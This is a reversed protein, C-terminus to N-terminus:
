FSVQHSENSVRYQNLGTFNLYKLHIHSGEEERQLVIKNGWLKNEVIHLAHEYVHQPIEYRSLLEALKEPLSMKIDDITQVLSFNEKGKMIESQSIGVIKHIVGCNNCAAYKVDKFNDDDDLESFVFFEHFPVNSTARKYQQLICNCQIAHYLFRMM